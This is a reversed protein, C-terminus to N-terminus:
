NIAFIKAFEAGNYYFIKVLKLRSSLQSTWPQTQNMNPMAAVVDAKPHYKSWAPDLYTQARQYTVGNEIFYSEYKKDAMSPENQAFYLWNADWFLYSVNYKKLLESSKASNNGYLIVAADAIRADVDIYPSFHTRRSTMIKRTTMSNVSFALEEHSIFVDSRNTNEAIWDTIENYVGPQESRGHEAWTDNYAASISYFANLALFLVAAFVLTKKLSEGNIMKYISFIGYTFIISSGFKMLFAYFYAPILAKGFVPMTILNHFGFVLAAVVLLLILRAHLERRNLIAFAIGAIIVISIIFGIASSTNFFTGSLTEIMVDVGYKSLDPETYYQLPNKISGHYFFIIPGFFLMSILAGISIIPLFLLINKIISKKEDSVRISLNMERFNLSFGIHSFFALHIFCVLSFAALAPFAAVHCLGALGMSIGALIRYKMKGSEISKALFLTFAMALAFDGMIRMPDTITYSITLALACLMLAFKRDRFFELGLFYSSFGVLFTLLVPFYTYAMFISVSFIKAIWAILLQNLWGYFAYEGSVQLNEWPASGLYINLAEGSHLYIDGGYMPGPFQKFQSICFFQIASIILIIMLPYVLEGLNIKIKPMKLKGGSEAHEENEM